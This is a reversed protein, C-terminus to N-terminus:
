HSLLLLNILVAAAITPTALFLGIMGWRLLTYKQNAIWCIHRLQDAVREINTEASRNLATVLEATTSYTVVDGYYVVFGSIGTGSKRERPYVALALCCIGIASEVIGLWWVWQIAAQLQLPSWSGAVLGALLAGAAVGSTALLISAKADARGIEERANSLLSTAYILTAEDSSRGHFGVVSGAEKKGPFGLKKAFKSRIM